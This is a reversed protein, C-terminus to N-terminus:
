EGSLPHDLRRRMMLTRALSHSSMRDRLDPDVARVIPKEPLFPDAFLHDVGAGLSFIAQWNPLGALAGPPHRWTLAYRVADRDFPEDLAAVSRAPM